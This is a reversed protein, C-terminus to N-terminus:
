VRPSAVSTHLGISAPRPPALAINLGINAVFFSATLDISGLIWLCLLAGLIGSIGGSAGVSLYPGTHTANSVVGGAIVACVYILVFYSPGIRKELLGGWLVLCLM